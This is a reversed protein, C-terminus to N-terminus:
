CLNRYEGKRANKEKLTDVVFVHSAKKWKLAGMILVLGVNVESYLMIM